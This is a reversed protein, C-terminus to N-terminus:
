FCKSGMRFNNGLKEWGGVGEFRRARQQADLPLPFGSAEIVNAFGPSHVDRLAQALGDPCDRHDVGAVAGLELALALRGTRGGAIVIKEVGARRMLMLMLLGIPGDGIILASSLDQLRLRRMARTCVALPEILVAQALPYSEPLVFVNQALNLLYQGYGGPHEFGVEGGDELINEAVCPKGLLAPNVGRGVADVTGSWEHGPVTPFGTRKKSGRRNARM